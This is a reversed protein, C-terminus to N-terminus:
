CCRCLSKRRFLCVPANKCYRVLSRCPIQETGITVSIPRSYGHSLSQMAYDREPSALVKAERGFRALREADRALASPLVKIAVQRDLKTDRARYVEGMGGQGLLSVVEYHGLKDCASLGM